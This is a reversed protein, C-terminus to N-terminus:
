MFDNLTISTRLNMRFKMGRKKVSPTYIVEPSCKSKMDQTLKLIKERNHTISRKIPRAVCFRRKQGENTLKEFEIKPLSIMDLLDRFHSCDRKELLTKNKRFGTTTLFQKRWEESSTRYPNPRNSTNRTGLSNNRAKIKRMKILSDVQSKKYEISRNRAQFTRRQCEKVMARVKSQFKLITERNQEKFIALRPSKSVSKRPSPICIPCILHQLLCIKTQLRFQVKRFLRGLFSAGKLLKKSVIKIASHSVKVLSVTLTVGVMATSSACTASRTSSARDLKTISRKINVISGFNLPHYYGQAIKMRSIKQTLKQCKSRIQAILLKLLEKVAKIRNRCGGPYCGSWDQKCRAKVMFYSKDKNSYLESENDNFKLTKNALSDHPFISNESLEKEEEENLLSLMSPRRYDVVSKKSDLISSGGAFTSLKFSKNTSISDNRKNKVRRRTWSNGKKSLQQQFENVLKISKKFSKKEQKLILSAISKWNNEKIECEHGEERSYSRSLDFSTNKSDSSFYYNIKEQLPVQPLTTFDKIMNEYETTKVSEIKDKWRLYILNNRAESIIENKKVHIAKKRALSWNSKKLRSKKYLLRSAINKHRFKKRQNKYSEILAKAARQAIDPQGQNM